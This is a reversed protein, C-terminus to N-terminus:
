RSIQCGCFPADSRYEQLEYETEENEPRNARDTLRDFYSRLRNESKLPISSRGSERKLVILSPMSGYVTWGTPPIPIAYNAREVPLPQEPETWFPSSPALYYASILSRLGWLCSAPGSYNDLVRPDAGCYGQTINGGSVGGNRIFYRWTVDLARRAVGPPVSPKALYQDLILPTSVAMRYCVSRGLIPIGEPGILYQFRTAFRDLSDGIFAHDFSPDVQDIWFLLYHIDWANYYDFKMGPGDSFWGDGRYFQRFRTYHQLAGNSDAQYGLAKVVVNVFTIFLHWNNDPIVKDNVQLLWEITYNRTSSPLQQWLTDRLLWVTLAIDSAEVIRQDDQEFRGWYGPSKPDTGHVIGDMLLQRARQAQVSNESGNARLWVALLPAIRSFGEVRDAIRPHESALGPYNALSGDPEKYAMFGDQFYAVLGDFDKRSADQGNLFPALFSEDTAPFRRLKSAKVKKYGYFCAFVISILLLLTIARITKPRVAM